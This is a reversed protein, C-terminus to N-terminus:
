DESRMRRRTILLVVAGVLLVAGAVYFIDTGIGGTGPLIIGASNTLTATATLDDSVEVAVDDVKASFTYKVPNTGEGDQTKTFEVKFAQDPLNYGLPATIEELYYTGVTGPVADTGNNVDLGVFKEEIKGNDDTTGVTCFSSDAELAASVDAMGAPLKVWTVKNDAFKYYERSSGSGQYLVFRAGKLKTDTSDEDVKVIDVNLTYLNIIKTVTETSTADAPNDSFTLTVTNTEVGREVADDTIEAVYEITITKGLYDKWAANTLDMAFEFGNGTYGATADEGSHKYSSFLDNGTFSSTSLETQGNKVSEIWKFTMGTTMTDEIKYIYTSYGEVTDPLTATVTFTVLQGVEVTRDPDDVTKEITPKVNKDYIQQSPNTTTLNCLSGNDTTVFWYGLDLDSVAGNTLEKAGTDTVNADKLAAAFVAARFVDEDFTVAYVKPNATNAVENLTLGSGSTAAFASVAGYWPSNGKITYAYHDDIGDNDDYTVDLIKYATYQKGAVANMVTISGRQGDSSAALASSALTLLLLAALLISILRKTKM